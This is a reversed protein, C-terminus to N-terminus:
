IGKEQSGRGCESLATFDNNSCQFLTFVKKKGGKKGKNVPEM